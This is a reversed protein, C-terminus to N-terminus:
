GVGKPATSKLYEDALKEVQSVTAGYEYNYGEGSHSFGEMFAAKIRAEDGMAEAKRHAELAEMAPNIIDIYGSGVKRSRCRSLIKELAEILVDSM